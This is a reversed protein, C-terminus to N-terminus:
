TNVNLNVVADLVGNVYLHLIWLLMCPEMTTFCCAVGLGVLVVRGGVVGGAVRVGVGDRVAVGVVAAGVVVLGGLVGGVVLGGGVVVAGAVVTGAGVGLSVGVDVAGSTRSGAGFLGRVPSAITAPSTTAM